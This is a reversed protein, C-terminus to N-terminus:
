VCVAQQLDNRIEERGRSSTNNRDGGDKGGDRNSMVTQQSGRRAARAARAADRRRIFKRAVQHGDDIGKMSWSHTTGPHKHWRRRLNEADLWTFLWRDPPLKFDQGWPPVILSPRLILCPFIREKVRPGGNQFEQAWSSAHHDPNDLPRRQYCPPMSKALGSQQLSGSIGISGRFFM